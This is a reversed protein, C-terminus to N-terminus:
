LKRSDINHINQQKELFEQQQQKSWGMTRLLGQNTLKEILNIGSGLRNLNM